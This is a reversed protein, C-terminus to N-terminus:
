FREFSRNGYRGDKIDQSAQNRLGSTRARTSTHNVQLEFDGRGVFDLNVNSSQCGDILADFGGILPAGYGKFFRPFHDWLRNGLEFRLGPTLRNRPCGRISRPGSGSSRRRNPLAIGAVGSLIPDANM